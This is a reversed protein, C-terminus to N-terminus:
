RLFRFVITFHATNVGILEGSPDSGARTVMVSTSFFSFDIKQHLKARNSRWGLCRYSKSSCPVHSVFRWSLKDLNHNRSSVM